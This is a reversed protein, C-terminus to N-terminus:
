ENEHQTGLPFATFISKKFLRKADITLSVSGSKVSHLAFMRVVVSGCLYIISLNRCFYLKSSFDLFQIKKMVCLLVSLEFYWLVLKSRQAPLRELLDNRDM